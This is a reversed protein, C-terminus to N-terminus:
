LMIQCSLKTRKSLTEMKVVLDRERPFRVAELLAKQLELVFDQLDEGKCQEIVINLALALMIQVCVSSKQSFATSQCGVCEISYLAVGDAFCTDADKQFTQLFPAIAEQCLRVTTYLSEKNFVAASFPKAPQYFVHLFIHQEVLFVVKLLKAAKTADANLEFIKNFFLAMTDFSKFQGKVDLERNLWLMFIARLLMNQEFDPMRMSDDNRVAFEHLMVTQYIELMGALVDASHVQTMAGLMYQLKQMWRGHEYLLDDAQQAADSICCCNCTLKHCPLAVYDLAPLEECRKWAPIQCPRVVITQEVSIHYIERYMAGIGSKLAIMGQESQKDEMEPHRNRALTLFHQLEQMFRDKWKRFCETAQCMTLFNSEVAWANLSSLDDSGIIERVSTYISRADAKLLIDEVHLM